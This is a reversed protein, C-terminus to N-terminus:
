FSQQPHKGKIIRSKHYVDYKPASSQYAHRNSSCSIILIILLIYLSKM